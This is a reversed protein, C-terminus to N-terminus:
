GIQNLLFVEHRLLSKLTRLGVHVDARDTVHVVALRCQRRGDGLNQCLLPQGLETIVILDVVRRLLLLAADGDVHVVGLVLSLFPVVGM